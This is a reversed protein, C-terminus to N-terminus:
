EIRPNILAKSRASNMNARTVLDAGTDIDMPVHEGRSASLAIKISDYGMRFPDQVVLAAIAGDQLLQVLSDDADFGVLNITDGGQNTRKQAVARAAGKAMVLDAAFVGRLEPYEALLDIMMKYGDTARGDGVKRAVIDLAGYKTKIQDAFGRAREDLSAVGSASTFLAVDGEADAYTRKIEDALIDAALRGARLNDTRLFSTFASSNAASDIGIIKTKRAANDIPQGLAAFQAPAIVVAAPDSAVANALIAIQGVADTESDTGLEIVNVGFDQGAKRAGALVLQWYRSTRDKVIIPIAPKTPALAAAQASQEAIERIRCHVFYTSLSAM